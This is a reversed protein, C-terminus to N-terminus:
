ISPAPTNARSIAAAASPRSSRPTWTGTACSPRRWACSINPRSGSSADRRGRAARPFARRPDTSLAQRRVAAPRRAAGHRREALHLAARDRPERGRPARSRVLAQRSAGPRGQVNRRAAAAVDRLRHHRQLGHQPRHAGDRRAPQEPTQWGSQAHGLERAAHTAGRARAGRQRDERRRRNGGRREDAGQARAHRCRSFEASRDERGRARDGAFRGIRARRRGPAGSQRRDAAEAISTSLLSM